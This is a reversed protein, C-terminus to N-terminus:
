FPVLENLSGCVLADVAFPDAKALGVALCAAFRRSYSSSFVNLGCISASLRLHPFPIM